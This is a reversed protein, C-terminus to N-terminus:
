ADVLRFMPGSGATAGATGTHANFQAKIDNLLTHLDSLVTANNATIVNTSDANFHIATSGVHTGWDSKLENALTIATALDSAAPATITATDVAKHILTDARHILSLARLENVLLVAAATGVATVGASDDTLVSYEAADLHPLIGGGVLLRLGNVGAALQTCLPDTKRLIQVTM